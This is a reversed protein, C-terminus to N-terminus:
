AKFMGVIWLAFFGVALGVWQYGRLRNKRRDEAAHRWTFIFVIMSGIWGLFGAELVVSWFVDPASDRPTQQQREQTRGDDKTEAKGETLTLHHIRAECKEIWEQGPTTFHRAGYFGSKLTRYAILAVRSDGQQEAKQGIEWLRQASKEVYPNLPTYWHISRDFYTVARILQNKQLLEEGKGFDKLSGYFARAWVLLLIVLVLVLTLILNRQISRSIPVERSSSRKGRSWQFSHPIDQM